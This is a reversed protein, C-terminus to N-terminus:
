RNKLLDGGCAIGTRFDSEACAIGSPTWLTHPVRVKCGHGLPSSRQSVFVVALGQEIARGAYIGSLHGPFGATFAYAARPLLASKLGLMPAALKRQPGYFEIFRGFPFFVLCDQGAHHLLTAYQAPFGQAGALRRPPWRVEFAWGERAFLAGLWPYRAWDETWAGWAAGHRLHGSYSALTAALREVSRAKDDRRLDISHAKGHCARRVASAEFAALRTHLSALTRRRPVRRNWWTKWGVFDIGKSAPFPDTMEPRLALRLHDRLFTEIATCWHALIVADRALLVM